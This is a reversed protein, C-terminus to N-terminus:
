RKLTFHSKFERGDQLIVYFWYDNAPMNYGNYTGDWGPGQPDLKTILKGYRDFIYIKSRAQNPTNIGYVQWTANHTDGNPTFFKPFGIISVQDETIGCNNKDRVYVTHFGPAVNEFSSEDQYPGNINDLAYEYDGEGSVHVTIMNNSSADVIDIAEITAINSPLINITRTKSCGNTNTVTVSYTGIENVQIEYTNQGSSWEYYYNSPSDGIVGANITIMEPYFNLCYLFEQEIDINPLENVILSIENIGYCANNTEVRAYIIQSYPTTNTYSNGLANEELLADEYTEYYTLTVGAPAGVLVSADADSLTFSHIGDETGDDDCEEIVADHSMTVSVNLELESISFCGTTENIVQVFLTQPNSFNNFANGDIENSGNEADTLTPYFKTVLDPENGVLDNHAQTLDFTTYGDPAGDEDCQLLSANFALPVPNIILDLTTTTYCENHDRNEIRIFLTENFPTTNYYSLPLPSLNQEANSLSNHYSVEFEVISQNGLVLSTIDTLDILTQGNNNNGDAGDDCVIISSIDNAIPTNYVEISFSTIDHCESNISSEIRAFITQPSTTNNFPLSIPNNRDNADEMSTYYTISFENEDQSDLIEAQQESFDFSWTADGNDDCIISNTAPYAIPINSITFNETFTKTEDDTTLTATVTYTGANGYVHTPTDDNSSSSDGFDWTISNYTESSDITFQTTDGLCLNDAEIKAVLFSQIFPPLGFVVSTGQALNLGNVEYNCNAGQENPNHIVDLTSSDGSNCVYIKGDPGLQFAGIFLDQELLLFQSGLIDTAELDYQYVTSGDAAYLKKSDPSFDTGYTRANSLLELPNSVIGTANDFDYLWFSGTNAPPGGISTSNEAHCVAIKSGDPSSKIYGIGNRRYGATSINPITQSIIPNPNVGDSDVIFAYFRDIFHTIVWYSQGNAHEVATIKEASKYSAENDNDPNYTVLHVNKEAPVVDGFGGNLSLDVLSYNFGNNYGDDVTPVSGGPGNTEAYQDLPNGNLDAPGQNPYAWANNHHPEDVTFIYYQDLNGPRPVIVASSTSSPDGLLGLDNAYDANPMVQFNADWVTRGDTYFLLNGDPDSISSCGENTAITGVASNVATVTNTNLDFVLGAGHGFYWNSAEGQAIICQISFFFCTFLLLRKM